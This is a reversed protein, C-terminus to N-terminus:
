NSLARAAMDQTEIFASHVRELIDKGAVPDWTVYQFERPAPGPLIPYVSPKVPDRKAVRSGAPDSPGEDINRWPGAPRRLM